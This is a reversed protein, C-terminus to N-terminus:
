TLLLRMNETGIREYGVAGREWDSTLSSRNGTVKLNKQRIKKM